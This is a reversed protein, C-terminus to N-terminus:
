IVESWSRHILEEPVLLNWSKQFRCRERSGRVMYHPQNPKMKKLKELYRDDILLADKHQELFYGTKSATTANDLLKIYAIVSDLDFFEISELSRWIEEWSGTREPRDLCDVLTREFTTVRVDIGARKHITVGVMPDGKGRLPKPVPVQLFRNSKFHFPASKTLSTYTYTQYASYAKGYFELATHYSLVADDTLKAAILFPDVPYTAPDSGAPVVAYLGRRLSIIRGRNRYYTLLAKRTHLNGSYHGKLFQELEKVTFVPHQSFFTELSRSRSSQDRDKM